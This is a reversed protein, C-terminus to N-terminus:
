ESRRLVKITRNHIPDYIIFSGVRNTTLNESLYGRERAWAKWLIATKEVGEEDKWLGHKTNEITTRGFYRKKESAEYIKRRDSYKRM